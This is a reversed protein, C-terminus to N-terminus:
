AKLLIYQLIFQAVMCGLMMLYDFTDGEWKGRVPEIEPAMTAVSVPKRANRLAIAAQRANLEQVDATIHVVRQVIKQQSRYLRALVENMAQEIVEVNQDPSFEGSNIVQEKASNTKLTFTRNGEPPQDASAPKPPSASASTRMPRPIRCARKRRDGTPQRRSAQDDKENFDRSTQSRQYGPLGAQKGTKNKASTHDSSHVLVNSESMNWTVKPPELCKKSMKYEGQSSASSEFCETSSDADSSCDSESISSGISYEYDTDDYSTSSTNFEDSSPCRIRKKVTSKRKSARHSIDKKKHSKSDHCCCHYRNCPKGGHIGHTGHRGRHSRKHRSHHVVHKPRGGLHRHKTERKRRRETSDVLCYAKHHPRPRHKGERRHSHHRRVKVKSERRRDVVARSKAPSCKKADKIDILSDVLDVNRDAKSQKHTHKRAVFVHHKLDCKLVDASHVDEQQARHLEHSSVETLSDSCSKSWINLPVYQLKESAEDTASLSLDHPVLKVPVCGIDAFEPKPSDKPTKSPTSARKDTRYRSPKDTDTSLWPMLQKKDLEPSPKPSSKLSTQPSPEETKRYQRFSFSPPSQQSSKKASKYCTADTQVPSRSVPSNTRTTQRSFIKQYPRQSTSRPLSPSRSPVQQFKKTGKSFLNQENLPHTNTKTANAPKAAYKTPSTAKKQPKPTPPPEPEKLARVISRIQTNLKPSGEKRPKSSPSQKVEKSAPQAQPKPQSKALFKGSQLLKNLELTKQVTNPSTQKNGPIKMVTNGYPTKQLKSAQEPTGKKSSHTEPSRAWRSRGANKDDPNSHADFALKRQATFRAGFFKHDRKNDDVGRQPSLKSKQLQSGAGSTRPAPDTQPHEKTEGAGEKVDDARSWKENHAPEPKHVGTNANRAASKMQQAAESGSLFSVKPKKTESSQHAGYEELNRLSGARSTAQPTANESRFSSLSLRRKAAQVQQEEHGVYDESSTVYLNSPPKESNESMKLMKLISLSNENSSTPQKGKLGRNLNGYTTRSQGATVPHKPPSRLPILSKLNQEPEKTVHKPRSETPPEATQEVMVDQQTYGGLEMFEESEAQERARALQLELDDTDKVRSDRENQRLMYEQKLQSMYQVLNMDPKKWRQDDAKEQRKRQTFSPARAVKKTGEAGPTAPAEQQARRPAPPPIPAPAPPALVAPHKPRTESNQSSKMSSM